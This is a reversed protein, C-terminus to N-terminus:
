GMKSFDDSFARMWHRTNCLIHPVVREKMLRVTERKIDEEIDGGCRLEFPQADLIITGNRWIPLLTYLRARNEFALRLPLSAVGVQLQGLGVTVDAKDARRFIDIFVAVLHEEELFEKAKRYTSGKEAPILSVGKWSLRSKNFFSALPGPLREVVIGANIGLIEVVAAAGDFPAVHDLVIVIDEKNEFRFRVEELGPGVVIRRSVDDVTEHWAGCAFALNAGVTHIVDRAASQLEEEAMEPQILKINREVRKQGDRWFFLGRNVWQAAVKLRHEAPKKQLRWYLWTALLAAPVLLLKKM